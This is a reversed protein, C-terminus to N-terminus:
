ERIADHVLFWVAPRQDRQRGGLKFGQQLPRGLRTRPAGQMLDTEIALIGGFIATKSM